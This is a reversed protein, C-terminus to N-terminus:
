LISVINGTSYWIDNYNRIKYMTIQARLERSRYTGGGQGRGVTVVLKNETDTLRNRNPKNM